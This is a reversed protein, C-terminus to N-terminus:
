MEPEGCRIAFEGNDVAIYFFESEEVDCPFSSIDLDAHQVSGDNFDHIEVHAVNDEVSDIVGICLLILTKM